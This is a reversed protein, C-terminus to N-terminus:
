NAPPPAPTEASDHRLKQSRPKGEAEAAILGALLIALATVEGDSMAMSRKWVYPVLADRRGLEATPRRPTM